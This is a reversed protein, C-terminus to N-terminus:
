PPGGLLSGLHGLVGARSAVAQAGRDLWSQQVYYDWVAHQEYSRVYPQHFVFRTDSFTMAWPADDCVIRDAEDYMARRKTADTEKRAVDLLADLKPNSYFTSNTSGEDSIASTAFLPEFFDAADPFDAQWGQPSMAVTGRRELMALYTPYSVIRLELRLGIKALQQQLIQAIFEDLGQKDILYEIPKPYGGQGTAPDYPFGAAKMHALALGLDYRQGDFPAEGTLLTPLVRTQVAMNQPRVKRLADRDIAYSVARRVEVNDFPPMEVNMGVSSVTRAVERQALPKWSPDALFRTTDSLSLERTLDLEGAELRFRETTVNMGYTFVVSDLYPEGARFYAEHRTLTLSRGHDWGGPALKFPGAGCPTWADDYRDGASPCVPRLAPMAFAALFTADPERLSVRVVYQGLVDVGALHASKKETYEKFGVIRDYFTAFGNPTDPHLSREISRKVDAATVESGDHFRVGQRLTFTYAKGDPDADFREALDAVVKGQSDFDVLGAFMMEVSSIAIPNTTVAPDLSSIDGFSALHLTGGRRPTLDGEHAVPMPPAVRENCGNLLIAGTLACSELRARISRM